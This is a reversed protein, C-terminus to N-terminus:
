YKSLEAWANEREAANESTRWIHNLQRKIAQTREANEATETVAAPRANKNVMNLALGGWSATKPDPLNAATEWRAEQESITGQAKTLMEEQQQIKTVLPAIADAIASKILEANVMSSANLSKQIDAAQEPTTEPNPTFVTGKVVEPEVEFGLAKLAEDRTIIGAEFQSKVLQEPDDQKQARFRGMKARAEDVTMKGALVKKGLKKRMGKELVSLYEESFEQNIKSVSPLAEIPNAPVETLTEAKGVGVTQPVGRSEPQAHPDQDLMPCMSPFMHSIHDHMTSLARRANEKEMVAYNLRTPTGTEKPYEFSAKMFSPSPTEHGASLPPRDFNGASPSSTAVSPATNPSEYGPSDAAHGDTIPPRNYKSPSMAGPSPYSTPGPNADRFAKHMERRYDNLESESSGKLAQAAEWVRTMEIARELDGTAADVAKRMWVGEDILSSFSAFPHYKAVDEPDYAACTMDHLRGLDADIGISKFRLMAAAEPNMHAGKTDPTKRGAPMPSEPPPSTNPIEQMDAADKAGSTSKPTGSCKETHTHAEKCSDDSSDGDPKNLWPPMKKGSKKGKKPMAGKEGEPDKVVDPTAEKVEQGETKVADPSITEDAVSAGKESKDGSTLPNAVDLESARRAILKKAAEANGHGTAALHAANQLDGANAIPYSGDPLAHGQSALSRREATNVDRKYVEAEADYLAQAALDDYHKEVFKGQLIKALDNPTFTISMDELPPMEFTSIDASKTTIDMNLMKSIVEEEGFMKGTYEATGDDASKVLQIGCSKNAPRDVLSIEVIEGATIIGGRAKGTVDREITPHAIGVSYARLAGKSLLKKAIPEVILSKVWTGGDEDIDVSVGV